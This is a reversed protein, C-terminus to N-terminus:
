NAPFYLDCDIIRGIMEIRLSLLAEMVEQIKEKKTGLLVLYPPLDDGRYSRLLSHVIEVKISNKEVLSYITDRLEESFRGKAGRIQVRIM